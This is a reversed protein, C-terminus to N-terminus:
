SSLLSSSIDGDNIWTETLCLIDLSNELLRNYIDASKKCVSRANLLAIRLKPQHPSLCFPEYVDLPSTDNFKHFQVPSPKPHINDSLFLSSLYYYMQPTTYHAFFSIPYFFFYPTPSERFYSFHFKLLHIMVYVICNSSTITM